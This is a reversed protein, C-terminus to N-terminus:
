LGLAEAIGEYVGNLFNQPVLELVRCGPNSWLLNTLAAGHLACVQKANAFLQIQQAMTLTETDIIAWGLNRFFDLVEAENILGRSAGVRHVFFKPPSV